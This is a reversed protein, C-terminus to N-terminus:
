QFHTSYSHILQPQFSVVVISDISRDIIIVYYYLLVTRICVYCIVICVNSVPVVADADADVDVVAQEEHDDDDEVHTKKKWYSTCTTPLKTYHLTTPM